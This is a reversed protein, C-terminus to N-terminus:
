SVKQTTAEALLNIASFDVTTYVNNPDTIQGILNGSPDVYAIQCLEGQATKAFAAGQIQALGEASIIYTLNNKTSPDCDVAELVTAEELKEAEQAKHKKVHRYCAAMDFFSLDCRDCTYPKTGTHQNLHEKLYQQRTFRKTCFNCLFPREGTHKLTHRKLDGSFSNIQNNHSM